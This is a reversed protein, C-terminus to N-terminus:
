EDLGISKLYDTREEKSIKKDKKAIQISDNRSLPVTHLENFSSSNGTISYSLGTGRGTGSIIITNNIDKVDIFGGHIIAGASGVDMDSINSNLADIFSGGEIKTTAKADFHIKTFLGGRGGLNPVFDISYKSEVKRDWYGLQADNPASISINSYSFYYVDILSRTNIDLETNKSIGNFNIPKTLQKPTSLNITLEDGVESHLNRYEPNEIDLMNSENWAGAESYYIVNDMVVKDWTVPNQITYGYKEQTAPNNIDMSVQTPGQNKQITYGVLVGDEVIPELGELELAMIPTNGNFQYPTYWPYEKVKPDVAFFRGIRPDHMRFKYNISNGEGKIEDDKEQGQFGYRYKDSSEHRNPM